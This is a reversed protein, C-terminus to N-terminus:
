YTRVGARAPVFDWAQRFQTEGGACQGSRPCVTLLGDNTTPNELLLPFKLTLTEFGLIM